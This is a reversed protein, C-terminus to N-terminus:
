PVLNKHSTNKEMSFIFIFVKQWVEVPSQILWISFLPICYFYGERFFIMDILNPQEFFIHSATKDPVFSQMEM